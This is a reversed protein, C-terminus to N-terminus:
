PQMKPKGTVCSVFRCRENLLVDCKEGVGRTFGGKM